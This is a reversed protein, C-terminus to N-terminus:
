WNGGTKNYGSNYADYQSILTRELLDLDNFGSNALPIISIRFYNGYKYDAYVDGNGHGTFHQNVRFFLRKAQGVYFMNKSENFIVYCGVIDGTNRKKIEFFEEPTLAGASNLFAEHNNCVRNKNFDLFAFLMSYFKKVKFESYNVLLFNIFENSLRDGTFFMSEISDFYKGYAKKFSARYAGKQTYVEKGESVFKQKTMAICFDNFSSKVWSDNWSAESPKFSRNHFLITIVIILVVAVGFFALYLGYEGM